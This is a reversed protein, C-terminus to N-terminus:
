AGEDIGTRMLACRQVPQGVTENREIALVKEAGRVPRQEPKFITLANGPRALSLPQTGDRDEQDFVPNNQGSVRGTKRRLLKM